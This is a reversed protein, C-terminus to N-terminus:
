GEGTYRALLVAWAGHLLTTLTVGQRAAFSQLAALHDAAVRTETEALDPEGADGAPRGSPLPTASHFGRLLERWYREAEAEDQALLWEVHARFPRVPLLSPYLGDRFADYAAFAEELVLRHSRGDLLAHHF